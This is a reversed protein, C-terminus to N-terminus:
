HTSIKLNTLKDYLRRYAGLADREHYHRAALIRGNATLTDLLPTDTLL